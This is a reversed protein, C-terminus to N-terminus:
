YRHFSDLSSLKKTHLYDDLSLINLIAVRPQMHGFELIRQNDIDRSLILQYRQRVM